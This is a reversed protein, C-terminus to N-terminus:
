LREIEIAPAVSLVAAECEARNNYGEPTVLIRKGNAKSVIRARWQKRRLLGRKSPYVQAKVDM